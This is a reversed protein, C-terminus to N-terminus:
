RGIIPATCVAFGWPGLSDGLQQVTGSHMHLKPIPLRLGRCCWAQINQRLTSSVLAAIGGRGDAPAVWHLECCGLGGDWFGTPVFVRRIWFHLIVWNPKDRWILRLIATFSVVVLIKFSLQLIVLFFLSFLLFCNQEPISALQFLM